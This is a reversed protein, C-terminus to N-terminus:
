LTEMLDEELDFLLFSGFVESSSWHGLYLLVYEFRLHKLLNSFLKRSLIRM